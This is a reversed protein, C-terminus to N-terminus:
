STDQHRFNLICVTSLKLGIAKALNLVEKSM